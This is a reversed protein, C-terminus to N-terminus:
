TASVGGRSPAVASFSSSLRSTGRARVPAPGPRSALRAAGGGRARGRGAAGAGAGERGPAPGAVGAAGGRRRGARRAADPLAAGPQPRERHRQLPAAGLGRPDPAAALARQLQVLRVAVVA